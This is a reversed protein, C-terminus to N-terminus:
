EFDGPPESGESVVSTALGSDSPLVSPPISLSDLLWERLRQQKELLSLLMNERELEFKSEQAEMVNSASIGLQLTADCLKTKMEQLESKAQKLDTRDQLLEELCSIKESMSATLAVMIEKDKSCAELKSKLIINENMVANLILTEEGEMRSHDQNKFITHHEASPSVTPLFDQSHHYELAVEEPINPMYLTQKKAKTTVLDKETPYLIELNLSLM